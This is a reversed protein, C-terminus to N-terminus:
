SSNINPGQEVESGLIWWFFRGIQCFQKRHLNVGQDLQFWILSIMSTKRHDLPARLISLLSRPSICFPTLNPFLKLTSLCETNPWLNSCKLPLAYYFLHQTFGPYVDGNCFHWSVMVFLFPPMALLMELLIQLYVQAKPPYPLDLLYVTYMNFWAASSDKHCNCSKNVCPCYKPFYDYSSLHLGRSIATEEDM